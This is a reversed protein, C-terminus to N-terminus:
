HQTESRRQVAPIRGVQIFYQSVPIPPGNIVLQVNTGTVEFVGPLAVLGRTRSLTVDQGTISFVGPDVTLTFGAHGISLDVNQGSILFSGTGVSM